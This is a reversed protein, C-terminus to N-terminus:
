NRIFLEIYIYSAPVALMVSDFRDLMGGHGPLVNGSDKVGLTRKLLSEILDGWTGFLVVTAALGLWNMRNIEPAFWAFAQSSALALILGGFFGEWSKKPSIREFLKHKGILSGVLYAGTDDLWVFIFIAMIFLPTYSMVGPTGPEAGIFNLMSFSGACYIQAFLTFAWNNIPNPAKYYLEAIMTLMIFLLYPLFIKGDTLGNAHVFTAIFLYVGGLMNVTRQLNANEYHKVLGGFEWLTLGTIICFLILFFIPHICIASILVVVFIIGTLARIILNKM